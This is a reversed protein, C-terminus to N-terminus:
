HILVWFHSILEWFSWGRCIHLLLLLLHVIFLVRFLCLRFSSRPHWRCFWIIYNFRIRFRIFNFRTTITTTDNAISAAVGATPYLWLLRRRWRQRGRSDRLRRDGWDYWDPMNQWLDRGHRVTAECNGLGRALYLDFAGERGACPQWGVLRKIPHPFPPPSSPSLM